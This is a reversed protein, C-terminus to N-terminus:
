PMPSERVPPLPLRSTLQPLYCPLYLMLPCLLPPVPAPPGVCGGTSFWKIEDASTAYRRLVGIRVPRDQFVFPLKGERVM